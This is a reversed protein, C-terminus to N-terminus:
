PHRKAFPSSLTHFFVPFLFRIRAHGGDVFPESFSGRRIAAENEMVIRDAAKSCGKIEIAPNKAKLAGVLDHFGDMRNM